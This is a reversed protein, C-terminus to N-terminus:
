DKFGLKRKMKAKIKALKEAEVDIDSIWRSYKIDKPANSLFLDWHIKLVAGKITGIGIFSIPRKWFMKQGEFLKVETPDVVEIPENLNVKEVPSEISTSTERAPKTAQNNGGSVGVIAAAAQSEMSMPLTQEEFKPQTRKKPM